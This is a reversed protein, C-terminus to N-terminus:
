RARKLGLHRGRYRSTCSFGDVDQQPAAPKKMMRGTERVEDESATSSTDQSGLTHSDTSASSRQSDATPSPLALSSAVGLPPATGGLNGPVEACAATSNLQQRLAKEWRERPIWMFANVRASGPIHWPEALARADLLPIAWPSKYSLAALAASNEAAESSTLKRCTGITAVGRVIGSKSECLYVPINSLLCRRGRIEVKKTGELILALWQQKIVLAHNPETDLCSIGGNIGLYAIGSSIM